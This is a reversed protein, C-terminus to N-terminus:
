LKEEKFALGLIISDAVDEGIGTEEDILESLKTMQYKYKGRTIKKQKNEEKLEEIRKNYKAILEPGAFGYKDIVFVQIESKHAHGNVGVVARAHSAVYFHPLKYKYNIWSYIIAGSLRALLKVADFNKGYFVDEIIVESVNTYLDRVQETIYHIKFFPDLDKNPIIRGKKMLKGDNSFKSWGTVKTSLDLTLYM